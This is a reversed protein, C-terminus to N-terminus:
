PTKSVGRRSMTSIRFPGTKLANVQADDLMSYLYLGVGYNHTLLRAREVLQAVQGADRSVVTKKAGVHDYNGVMVVMAEPRRMQQRVAKIAPWDPEAEYHMAFIVDILGSDAWKISNQGQIYLNPHGPHACVSILMSAHNTRVYNSVRQVIDGVAKEQWQAITDRASPAIRYSYRDLSLSRGSERHYDDACFQSGCIACGRIYDLNVGQFRYRSICEIVLDSIFTRFEPKHVDFCGDPTGADYYQSLFDRQRMAINFWPHIELQYDAAINVLRGLPDFGSDNKAIAELKYSDWPALASPWSTGRGHWVNPVFVNFGARKLRECLNRAGTETIWSLSEDFMARIENEGPEQASVLSPRIFAGATCIASLQLFQRRSFM